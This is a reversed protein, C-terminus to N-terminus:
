IEGDTVQLFVDELTDKQEEVFLIGVGSAFLSSLLEALEPRELGWEIRFENGSRAVNLVGPTQDLVRAAADAGGVVEIRILRTQRAETLIERHDGSTILKGREIIAIKNCMDGLESLIHSLISM